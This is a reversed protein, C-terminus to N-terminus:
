NTIEKYDSLILEIYTKDTNILADIAQLLQAKEPAQKGGKVRLIKYGQNYLFKDRRKDKEIDQHWYWGDYEVDIKIDNIYIVCDLYCNGEIKNLYVESFQESLFEYIKLQAKSTPVTGNKSCSEMCKKKLKPDFMPNEVGYVDIMGQIRRQKIENTKAACFKCYYKGEKYKKSKNFYQRYEMGLEKGCNDCIVQVRTHSNPCLDQPHIYYYGDKNIKYGKEELNKINKGNKSPMIKIFQNEKLM